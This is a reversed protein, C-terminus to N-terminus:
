DKRGLFSSAKECTWYTCNKVDGAITPDQWFASGHEVHIHFSLEKILDKAKDRYEDREANVEPFMHVYGDIEKCFANNMAELERIRLVHATQKRWLMECEKRLSEIYPEDSM